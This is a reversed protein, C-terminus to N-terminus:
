MSQALQSVIALVAERVEALARRRAEHDRRTAQLRVTQETVAAMAASAQASLEELVADEDSVMGELAAREAAGLGSDPELLRQARQRNQVIKEALVGGEQLQALREPDIIDLRKPGALTDILERLKGRESSTDPLDLAQEAGELLYRRIIAESSAAIDADALGRERTYMLAFPDQENIAMHAILGKAYRPHHKFLETRAADDGRRAASLLQRALRAQQIEEAALKREGGFRAGAAALEMAVQVAVGPGLAGVISAAIDVADAGVQIKYKRCLAEERSLSEEFAGALPSGAARAAESLLGDYRAKLQRAAAEVTDIALQRVAEGTKLVPLLLEGIAVGAAALESASKLLVEQRMKRAVPDDEAAAALGESGDRLAGVSGAIGAAAGFFSGLASATSGPLVSLAEAVSSGRGLTESGLRIQELRDPDDALLPQLIHEDLVGPALGLAQIADSLTRATAEPDSRTRAAAVLAADRASEHEETFAAEMKNFAEIEARYAAPRLGNPVVQFTAQLEAATAGDGIMEAARRALTSRFDEIDAMLEDDLLARDGEDELDLARPAGTEPDRFKQLRDVLSLNMTIFAEAEHASRAVQRARQADAAAVSAQTLREQAAADRRAADEADLLASAHAQQAERLRVGAPDSRRVAEAVFQERQEKVKAGAEEALDLAENAAARAGHVAERLAGLESLAAQIAKMRAPNEAHPGSVGEVMDQLRDQHEELRMEADFLAGAAVQAEARTSKERDRALSIAKRRAPSCDELFGDLLSQVQMGHVEAALAAVRADDEAVRLQAQAAIQESEALEVEAVARQEALGVQEYLDEEAAAHGAEAAELAALADAYALRAAEQAIKAEPLKGRAEDIQARGQKGRFARIKSGIRDFQNVEMDAIQLTAHAEAVARRASLLGTLKERGLAEEAKVAELNAAALEVDSEAAAADLAREESRAQESEHLLLSNRETRVTAAHSRAMTLADEAAALEMALGDRGVAAQRSEVEARETSIAQLQAEVEALRAELGDTNKLPDASEMESVLQESLAALGTHEQDLLELMVRLSTQESEEADKEARLAAVAARREGVITVSRQLTREAPSLATLIEAEPPAEEWWSVLESSWREQATAARSQAIQHDRIAGRAAERAAELESELEDQERLLVDVEDDLNATSEGGALRRHRELDRARLRDGLTEQRQELEAVVQEASGAARESALAEAELDGLDDDAAVELAGLADAQRLMVRQLRAEQEVIAAQLRQQKRELSTLSAQAGALDQAAKERTAPRVFLKDELEEVQSSLGAVADEQLYIHRENDRVSLHLEELRRRIEGADATDEVESVEVASLIRSRRLRPISPGFFTRLHREMRDVPESTRFVYHSRDDSCEVTGRSFIKRRATQRLRRTETRPIVRRHVLLVPDGDAGAACYLYRGANGPKLLRLQERLNQAQEKTLAM